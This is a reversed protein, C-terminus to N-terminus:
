RLYVSIIRRGDMNKPFAYNAQGKSVQTYMEKTTTETDRDLIAVLGDETDKNPNKVFIATKNKNLRAEM